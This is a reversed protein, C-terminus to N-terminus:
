GRLPVVRSDEARGEVVALLHAAWAALAQRKQTEYQARNYTGAVGHRHGSVHGLIAEVIHPAVNLEDHLRTSLTRRLDHHVWVIAAGAERIIRKDLADKLVPGARCRVVMGVASCSTV